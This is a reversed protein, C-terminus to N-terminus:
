RKGGNAGNVNRDRGRWEGVLDGYREGGLISSFRITEVSRDRVEDDFLYLVQPVFKRNQLFGRVPPLLQWKYGEVKDIMGWHKTTTVGKYDKSSRPEFVEFGHDHFAKALALAMGATFRHPDLQAFRMCVPCTTAIRQELVEFWFDDNAADLTYTM